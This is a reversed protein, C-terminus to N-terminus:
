FSQINCIFYVYSSGLLHLFASRSPVEPRLSYHLQSSRPNENTEYLGFNSNFFDTVLGSVGIPASLFFGWHFIARELIYSWSFSPRAVYFVKLCFNSYKLWVGCFVSYGCGYGYGCCPLGLSGGEGPQLSAGWGGQGELPNTDSFALYLALVKMGALCYCWRWGAGDRCYSHPGHPSCYCATRVGLWSPM